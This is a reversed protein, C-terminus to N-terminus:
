PVSCCSQLIHGIGVKIMLQTFVKLLYLCRAILSPIISHHITTDRYKLIWQLYSLIPGDINLIDVINTDMHM